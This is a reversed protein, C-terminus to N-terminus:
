NEPLIPLVCDEGTHNAAEVAKFSTLVGSIVACASPSVESGVVAGSAARLVGGRGSVFSAVPPQIACAYITMGQEDTRALAAAAVGQSSAPAALWSSLFKGRNTQVLEELSRERVKEAVPEYVLFKYVGSAPDVRGVTSLRFVDDDMREDLPEVAYVVRGLKIRKM